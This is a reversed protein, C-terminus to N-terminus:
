PLQIKRVKILNWKTVRLVAANNIAAIIKLICDESQSVPAILRSCTSWGSKDQYHWTKSGVYNWMVVGGKVFMPLYPARHLKSLPM